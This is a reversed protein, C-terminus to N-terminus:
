VGEIDPSALLVKIVNVMGCSCFAIVGLLICRFYKMM